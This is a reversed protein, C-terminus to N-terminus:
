KIKNRRKQFDTYKAENVKEKFNPMFHDNLVNIVENYKPAEMDKLKKNIENLKEKFDNVSMKETSVIYDKPFDKEKVKISYQIKHETEPLDMYDFVFAMNYYHDKNFKISFLKVFDNVVGTHHHHTVEGCWDTYFDKPASKNLNVENFKSGILSKFLDINNKLKTMPTM